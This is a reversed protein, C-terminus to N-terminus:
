PSRENERESQLYLDRARRLCKHFQVRVGLETRELLEAIQRYGMERYIRLRILRRCSPGLARIVRTAAGRRERNLVITDPGSPPDPPDVLEPQRNSRLWDVCRRHTISRVLATFGRDLRFDPSSVAQHVGILIDQIVDERHDEPIYYGREGVMVRALKTVAAVADREGLRFRGVSVARKVPFNYM